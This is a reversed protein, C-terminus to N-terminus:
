FKYSFGVGLIEKFQTRPGSKDIVNDGDTDIGIKIDHDYLLHTNFNISIYKNVKLSVLTEWSVDVHDPSDLYNTFLDVKSTFSINELIESKFDNRSYIARLYGGLESRTKNGPTVVNGAMDYTAGEVGFAGADALVQDNVITTKITVPSLFLSFYKGSKYDMGLAGLIYAPALLNSIEDTTNPYNYGATMQTKFNFLGAYYWNESAKRGYKSLFDIKDDTKLFDADKGQKLLGYGLDLSNDWMFKEQKNSAFASFLGNVSVSNQGGAAWNKLSTQSLNVSFIAGKTWGMITDASQKRLKAEGETVQSNSIQLAMFLSLIITFIKKM